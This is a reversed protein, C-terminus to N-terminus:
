VVTREGGGGVGWEVMAGGWGWGSGWGWGGGVRGVGGWGVGQAEAPKEGVSKDGSVLSKPPPQKPATKGPHLQGGETALVSRVEFM